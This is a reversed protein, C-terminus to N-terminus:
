VSPMFSQYGFQALVEACHNKCDLRRSKARRWPPLLLRLLAVAGVSLAPAAYFFLGQSYFDSHLPVLGFGLTCVMKRIGVAWIGNRKQWHGKATQWKPSRLCRSGM